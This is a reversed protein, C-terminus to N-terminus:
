RGGQNGRWAPCMRREPYSGSCINTRLAMSCIRVDYLEYELVSHICYPKETDALSSVNHVDCNCYKDDTNNKKSANNNSSPCM